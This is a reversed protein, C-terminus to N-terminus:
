ATKPFYHDQMSQIAGDMVVLTEHALVTYANLNRVDTVTINEINKASLYFTDKYADATVVLVKKDAMDQKKLFGAVLKTKPKEIEKDALKLGLIANNEAKLSLTSFLALRKQKKNMKLSYDRPKPGFTIGGGVFLNAKRAGHRAGGTGKQRYIKKTSGIVEARTKTSSTGQRQNQLYMRVYQSVTEKANAVGFLEAPLTSTGAEKGDLSIVKISLEQDKNAKATRAM